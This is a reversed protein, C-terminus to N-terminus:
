NECDPSERKAHIPSSAQPGPPPGGDRSSTRSIAGPAISPLRYLAPPISPPAKRDREGLMHQPGPHFAVVQPRIGHDFLLRSRVVNMAVDAGGAQPPVTM